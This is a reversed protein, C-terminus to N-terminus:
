KRAELMADAYKYAQDTIYEYDTKGAREWANKALMSMEKSSALGSIAGQMAKAAFYDRLDMGYGDSYTSSNFPGNHSYMSRPFAPGGTEKSM